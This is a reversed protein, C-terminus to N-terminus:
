NLALYEDLTAIGASFAFSCRHIQFKNSSASSLDVASHLLTPLAAPRQRRSTPAGFITLAVRSVEEAGEIYSKRRAARGSTADRRAPKRSRGAEWRLNRRPGNLGALQPGFRPPRIPPRYRASQRAACTVRSERPRGFFGIFDAVRRSAVRRPDGPQGNLAATELTGPAM